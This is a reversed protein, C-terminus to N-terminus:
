VSIHSIVGGPKLVPFSKFRVDGGMLDFVLDIDKVATSFDTRTYDIVQDAGLSRVFDANKAGATAAVWAGRHKGLQVGFGGVGGSGAHGLGRHGRAVKGTTVLGAWASLAQIPISGADIDSLGKPKRALTAAPMLAFEAFTGWRAPDAVGYVEDGAKFGTVAS